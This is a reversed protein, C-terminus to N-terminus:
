GLPSNEPVSVLEVDLEGKSKQLDGSLEGIYRLVHGEKQNAKIEDYVPDLQQLSTLFEDVSLDRM